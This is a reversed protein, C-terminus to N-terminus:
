FFFIFALRSVDVYKVHFGFNAMKLHDPLCRPLTGLLLVAKNTVFVKFNFGHFFFCKWSFMKCPHVFVEFRFFNWYLLGMEHVCYQIITWCVTKIPEHWLQLSIKHLHFFFAWKRKGATSSLSACPAHQIETLM